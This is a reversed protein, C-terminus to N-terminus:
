KGVRPRSLRDHLAGHERRDRPQGVDRHPIQVGLIRVEHDVRASLLRQEDLVVEDHQLVREYQYEDGAITLSHSSM